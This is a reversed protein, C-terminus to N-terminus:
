QVTKNTKFKEELKQKLRSRTVWWADIMALVDLFIQGERQEGLIWDLIEIWDSIAYYGTKHPGANRFAVLQNRVHQIELESRM